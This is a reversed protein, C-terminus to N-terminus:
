TDLIFTRTFEDCNKKKAPNGFKVLTSARGSGRRM